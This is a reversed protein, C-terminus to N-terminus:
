TTSPTPLFSEAQKRLGTYRRNLAQRDAGRDDWLFANAQRLADYGTDLTDLLWDIRALTAVTCSRGSLDDQVDLTHSRWGEALYLAYLADKSHLADQWRLMHGRLAAIVHPLAGAQELRQSLSAYCAIALHKATEFHRLAADIGQRKQVQLWWGFINRTELREVAHFLPEDGGSGATNLQRLPDFRYCYGFDFLWVRGGDDLLNGPSFDWEFFGAEVLGAAAAFAQALRREDWESVTKGEVWPMLLVGHASSAYLTPVVPCYAPWAGADQLQLMEERRLLENLFSTQGDFNKVLAAPRRIKLAYDCGAFRIRYVVATLGGAHVEVVCASQPTVRALEHPPPLAAPVEGITVQDGRALFAKLAAHRAAEPLAMSM